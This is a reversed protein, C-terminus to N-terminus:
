IARRDSSVGVTGSSAAEAKKRISPMCQAVHSDNM